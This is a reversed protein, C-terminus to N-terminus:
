SWTSFGTHSKEHSVASTIEQSAFANACQLPLWDRITCVPIHINNLPLMVAPKETTSSVSIM